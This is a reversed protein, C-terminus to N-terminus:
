RGVKWASREVPVEAKEEEEETGKRSLVRKV